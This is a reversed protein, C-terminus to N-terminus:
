ADVYVVSDSEIDKKVMFFHFFLPFYCFYSIPLTAAADTILAPFNIIAITGRM